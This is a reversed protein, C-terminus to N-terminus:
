NKKRKKLYARREIRLLELERDVHLVDPHQKTYKLLLETRKLRLEVQKKDLGELYADPEIRTM